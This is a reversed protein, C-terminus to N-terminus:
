HVTPRTSTVERLPIGETELHLASVPCQEVCVECGDCVAPRALYPFTMMQGRRNTEREEPELFQHTLVRGEPSHPWATRMSIACPVCVDMCIGCSICEKAALRLSYM